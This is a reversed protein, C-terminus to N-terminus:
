FDERSIFDDEVAHSLVKEPVYYCPPCTKDTNMGYLWMVTNLGGHDM